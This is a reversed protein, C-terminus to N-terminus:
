RLFPVSAFSEGAADYLRLVVPEAYPGGYPAAPLSVRFTRPRGLDVGREGLGGANVDSGELQVGLTMAGAAPVSTAVLRGSRVGYASMRHVTRGPLPPM